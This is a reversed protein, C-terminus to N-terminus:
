FLGSIIMFGLVFTDRPRRRLKNVNILLWVRNFLFEPEETKILKFINRVETRYWNSKVILFRKWYAKLGTNLGFQNNLHQRYRMNTQDDIKWVFGKSRCFAYILWDHLAIENVAMWNTNMFTKFENLVKKKFVYTCGPGAAEFLYDYRKQPYSKKVISERGSKWFAIVDSSYIDIEETVFCEVARALKYELWIDDQDALAVYNFSCFDVERILRYFNKAAGGFKAGYPLVVVQNNKQALQVCWEYTGDTSLDISIFLTVDVGRQIFISNVQEQIWKMGNFATLLVAIKPKVTTKLCPNVLIDM